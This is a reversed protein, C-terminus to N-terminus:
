RILAGLRGSLGGVWLAAEVMPNSSTRKLNRRTFTSLVQCCFGCFPPAQTPAPPIARPVRSTLACAALSLRSTLACASVLSLRRMSPGAAQFARQLGALLREQLGSSAAPAGKARRQAGLQVARTARWM